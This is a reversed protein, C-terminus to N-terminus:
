TLQCETPHLDFPSGRHNWQVWPSVRSHDGEREAGEIAIGFELFQDSDHM